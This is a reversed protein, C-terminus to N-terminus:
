LFNGIEISDKISATLASMNRSFKHWQENDPMVEDLWKMDPLGQKWQEYKNGLTVGGTVAGGLLIYRLKM